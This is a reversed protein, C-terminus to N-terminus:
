HVMEEEKNHTMLNSLKDNNSHRERHHYLKIADLEEILSDIVFDFDNDTRIM